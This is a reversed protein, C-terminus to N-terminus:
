GFTVAALFQDAAQRTAALDPHAPLLSSEQIALAQSMLRSAALKMDAIRAISGREFLVQGVFPHRPGLRTSLIHQAERLHLEAERPLEMARYVRGLELHALGLGPPEEVARAWSKSGQWLAATVLLRNKADNFRSAARYACGLTLSATRDSITSAKAGRIHAVMPELLEVAARAHGNAVLLRAWLIGWDSSSRDVFCSAAFLQQDAQRIDGFELYATALLRRAEPELGVDRGELSLEDDIAIATELSGICQRYRGAALQHLGTKYYLEALVRRDPEPQAEVINAAASLAIAADGPHDCLGAQLRLCDATFTSM